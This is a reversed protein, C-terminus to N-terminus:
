FMKRHSPHISRGAPAGSHNHRNEGFRHNHLVTGGRGGTGQGPPPRNRRLKSNKKVDRKRKKKNNKHSPHISRAAPAIPLSVLGAAPLARSGQRLQQGQHVAEATRLPRRVDDDDPRGVPLFSEKQCCCRKAIVFYLLAWSHSVVETRGRLTRGSVDGMWLGPAMSGAKLRGPLNSRSSASAGGSACPRASMRRCWRFPTSTLHTLTHPRHKIPSTPEIRTPTWRQGTSREIRSAKRVATNAHDTTNHATICGAHSNNTPRTVAVTRDLFRTHHLQCPSRRVVM